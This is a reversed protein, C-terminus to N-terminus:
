AFEYISEDAFEYITEDAFQYTPCAADTGGDTISWSFNSIIFNRAAISACYQSNGGSFTVGNQLNLASWGILLADYNSTSLKVGSFMNTMNTVNSVDWSDINRDFSVALRFMNLMNTVNSVNWSNIEQNFSSASDFMLSMDTVNSVDWAGIPTDFLTAGSFAGNMNVIASVDWLGMSPNGKLNSCNQFMGQFTSVGALDLIDTALIDLNACGSFYNSSVGLKLPGWELVDLIKLRDNFGGIFSFGTIVGVITITYTGALAYTHTVEAQNFATITDQTQDGWDIIFDYSGSVSLPLKVQNSLSSGTETNSTKWRSIFAPGAPVIPEITEFKDPGRLRVNDVSINDPKVKIHLQPHEPSWESWHMLLDKQLGEGRRMESSKYKFGSIDSIVNHEGLIARNNRGGNRRSGGRRM